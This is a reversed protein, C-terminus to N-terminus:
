QVAAAKFAACAFSRMTAILAGACVFRSAEETRARRLRSGAKWYPVRMSDDIVALLGGGEEGVSEWEGVVRLDRNRAGGAIISSMAWKQAYHNALQQHHSVDSM